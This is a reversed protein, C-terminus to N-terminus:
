KAWMKFISYLNNLIDDERNVKHFVIMDKIIQKAHAESKAEIETKMKKGYIEFYVTYIM